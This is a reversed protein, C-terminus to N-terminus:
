ASFYQCPMVHLRQCSTANAGMHNAPNDDGISQVLVDFDSATGIFCTHLGPLNLWPKKEGSADLHRKPKRTKTDNTADM